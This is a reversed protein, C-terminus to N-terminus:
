NQSSVNSRYSEVEWSRIFDIQDPPMFRYGGFSEAYEAIRVADGFLLVANEAAKETSGCGFVGLGSIVITKPMVGESRCYTGVAGALASTSLADSDIFLTRHGCYVIHDPTFASSVPAFSEASAAVKLIGRNSSFRIKPNGDTEGGGSGFAERIRDIITAIRNGDAACVADDPPKVLAGHIAAFLSAYRARVGAITDSAIFVGHNQLLIYEPRRAYDALHKELAEKVTVALVYGPSVLPIWLAKEHFLRHAAERGDNSCTLGNVLSPHTHVVFAEPIAEHLLTEVSPRKDGEGEGRAAMLDALAVSERRDPDEPYEETWIDQLMSREMKVFGNEKITALPFGSAKIYLHTGDKFSTNGGGALVYKSDAGFERSIAAVEKLSM